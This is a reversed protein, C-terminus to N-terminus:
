LRRRLTGAVGDFMKGVDPRNKFEARTMRRSKRKDEELVKVQVAAFAAEYINLDAEVTGKWIPRM